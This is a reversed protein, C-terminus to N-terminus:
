EKTCTASSGAKALKATFHSVSDKFVECQREVSQMGDLTLRIRHVGAEPFGRTNTPEVWEHGDIEVVAGFPTSDVILRGRSRVSAIFADKPIDRAVPIARVGCRFDMTTWTLARDVDTDTFGRRKLTPGIDKTSDRMLKTDAVIPSPCVRLASGGSRTQQLPQIRLESIVAPAFSVLVAALVVKM